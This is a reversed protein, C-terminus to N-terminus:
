APFRYLIIPTREGFWAGAINYDVHEMAEEETLGDAVFQAVLLDYDYVILSDHGHQSGYGIIASNCDDFIIAGEVEPFLHPDIM